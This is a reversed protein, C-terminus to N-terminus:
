EGEGVWSEVVGGAKASRATWKPGDPTSIREGHWGDDVRVVGWQEPGDM